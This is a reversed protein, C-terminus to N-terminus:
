ERAEAAQRQDSWIPQFAAWWQEPAEAIAEEFRRAVERTLAAADARRDGTMEVEVPWARARFREAGARLCSAVILPRGTMLALAAPGTPITTPQGFLTAPIGDGALDRDAVLAVVEGRRLAEVMPRRSRAVPIINVRGAGRRAHLFEFLEPPDIEEIPATAAIGHRAVFIGYPEFNGLHPVAVVVGAHLVPAWREWDLVELGAIVDDPSLHRLRVLELYYRAHAVFADRVLRRFAPGGTPRGTAACVRRLNESVLARRAPAGRHWARGLLDAVGYAVPGPLAGVVVDAGALAWRLARRRLM